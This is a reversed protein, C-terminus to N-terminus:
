YAYLSSTNPFARPLPTMRSSKINDYLILEHKCFPARVVAALSYREILFQMMSGPDTVYLGPDDCGECMICRHLSRTEYPAPGYILSGPFFIHLLVQAQLLEADAINKVM